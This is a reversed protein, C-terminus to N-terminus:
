IQSKLKFVLSNNEAFIFKKALSGHRTLLISLKKKIKKTGM